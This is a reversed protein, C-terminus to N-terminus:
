KEDLEKLWGRVKEAHPSELAECIVLAQQLLERQKEIEGLDGCANECPRIGAHDLWGPRIRADNRANCQARRRNTYEASCSFRSFRLNKPYKKTFYQYQKIELCNCLRLNRAQGARKM